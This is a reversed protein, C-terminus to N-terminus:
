EDAIKFLRLFLKDAPSLDFTGASRPTDAVVSQYSNASEDPTDVTINVSAQIDHGARELAVLAATVEDSGLSQNIALRLRNLLASLTRDM